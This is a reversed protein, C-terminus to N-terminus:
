LSSAVDDDSRNNSSSTRSEVFKTGEIVEKSRLSQETLKHIMSMPM